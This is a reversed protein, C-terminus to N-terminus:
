GFLSAKPKTASESATSSGTTSKNSKDRTKGKNAEVWKEYFGADDQAKIEQVTKKDSTRFAKNIDNIIRTEGPANYKDEIIKLVGLTIEKGLLEMLVPKNAPAQKNLDFNWVNLTKEEPELDGLEQGVTLLSIANVINFGPLYKKNGQKDVYYNLKGKAEGSTIYITQKLQQGQANKFTFNVNMAGGKSQDVYAMEITFDYADSELIRSGITDTDEQIEESTKLNSFISM